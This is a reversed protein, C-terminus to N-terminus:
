SWSLGVTICWLTFFSRYTGNRFNNNNGINISNNNNNNYVIWKTMRGCFLCWSRSLLSLTIIFAVYNITIMDIMIINLVLSYCSFPAVLFPHILNDCSVIRLFDDMRKELPFYNWSLDGEMFTSYYIFQRM